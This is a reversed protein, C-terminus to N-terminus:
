AHVGAIVYACAAVLAAPQNWHRILYVDAGRLPLRFQESETPGDGHGFAAHSNCLIALTATVSYDMVGTMGILGPIPFTPTAPLQTVGIGKVNSNGFFDSWGPANMVLRDARYGTAAYMTAAYLNIDDYPDHDSWGNTKEGWDHGPTVTTAAELVADIKTNEALSLSLAAAIVENAMLGTNAQKIDEDLIAVPYVDKHDRLNITSSAYSTAKLESEHGAAVDSNATAKTAARVTGILNPMPLVQCANRLAYWPAVLGLVEMMVNTATVNTIDPGIGGQRKIAQRMVPRPGYGQGNLLAQRINWTPPNFIVKRGTEQGEKNVLELLEEKSLAYLEKDNM